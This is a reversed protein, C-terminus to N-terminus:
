ASTNFAINSDFVYLKMHIDPNLYLHCGAAKLYTFIEVDSAGSLLDETRWRCVVKLRVRKTQLWHLQQLAAVKIFPVILLIIDDGQEIRERLAYHVPSWVLSVSM